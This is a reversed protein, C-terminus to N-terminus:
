HKTEGYIKKMKGLVASIEYSKVVRGACVAFESRKSPHNVMYATAQVAAGLSNDILIGDRGHVILDENGRIKTCVVPLGSAMAEMLAVSLGERHSPFFFLDAMHYFSPVDSRYGTFIVQKEVGLNASLKKLAEMSSGRGVIVYFLQPITDKLRAIARIGLEHNKNKNVEGVSLVVFADLPIGLSKRLKQSKMLWILKGGGYIKLMEPEVTSLDFKQIMKAAQASLEQLKSPNSVLQLINEALKEATSESIIGSIGNEVLDTNGRIDSCIVPVGCAMAEMMAVPLGEQKSMFVFLDSAQCIASIDNRYGLFHVHDAIQLEQALAKLEDLKVGRGCIVYQINGLKGQKQLLGLAHLVLQHNKRPILEGVSLLIFDDKTFGLERRKGERNVSQTNFKNLDVGVGPVYCVRCAKFSKAREYDEKNITILTDTYHALWREVPYFIMWNLLPAGKYFHFGHATYIVKTGRKRSARAALRTLAAGVPTHCHIIDYHGVDIIEKLKRYAELNGPKFPNREFPIDYYTDCYPIQCDGPNEYDNRAAVATEWGAEKFMKLYPIHFEMIHNKVVTAVFLVKKM